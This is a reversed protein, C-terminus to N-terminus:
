GYQPAACADQRGPRFAWRPRRGQLHAVDIAGALDDDVRLEVLGPVEDVPEHFTPHGPSEAADVLGAPVHVVRGLLRAAPGGAPRITAPAVEPRSQATGAAPPM